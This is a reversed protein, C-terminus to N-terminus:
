YPINKLRIAAYVDFLGYIGVILGEDKEYGKNQMIKYAIIGFVVHLIIVFTLM